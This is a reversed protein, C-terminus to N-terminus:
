NERTDRKSMEGNHGSKKQNWLDYKEIADRCTGRFEIKRGSNIM